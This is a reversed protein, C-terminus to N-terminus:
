GDKGALKDRSLSLIGSGAAGIAGGYTAAGAIKKLTGVIRQHNNFKEIANVAKDILKRAQPGNNRIINISDRVATDAENAYEKAVNGFRTPTLLKPDTIISKLKDTARYADSALDELKLIAETKKIGASKAITNTITNKMAGYLNDIQDVKINEALGRLDRGFTGPRYKGVLQKLARLSEVNNPLKDISVGLEEIVVRRFEKPVNSIIRSFDAPDVAINNYASFAQGVKDGIFKTAEETAKLIQEGGKRIAGDSLKSVGLIAKSASRMAQIPAAIDFGLEVAGSLLKPSGAVNYADSLSGQKMGTIGLASEKLLRGPDFNGQQMQLSPNVIAGKALTLPTNIVQLAGLGKNLLNPSKFNSGIESWLSGRSELEKQVNAGREKVGSLYNNNPEPKTPAQTELLRQIAVVKKEKDLANFKELFQKRKDEDFSAVIDRAKQADEPNM